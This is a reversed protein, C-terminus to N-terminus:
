SEPVTKWGIQFYIERGAFGVEIGPRLLDEEWGMCLFLAIM